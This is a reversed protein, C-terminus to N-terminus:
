CNFWKNTLFIHAKSFNNLKSSDSEEDRFLLSYYKVPQNHSIFSIVYMLHKTGLAFPLPGLLKM